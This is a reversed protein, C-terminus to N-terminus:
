LGLLEKKKKNFEDQSIIGDDLLGKFKKLEDAASTQQVVTTAGSNAIKDEVFDKIKEALEEDVKKIIVTNENGMVSNNLNSAMSGLGGVMSLPDFGHTQTSNDGTKQFYIYGKTLMDNKKFQVSQINKMLLTKSGATGHGLTGLLGKREIVVKEDYVYLQGGVGELQFKPEGM